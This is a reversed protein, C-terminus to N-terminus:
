GSGRRRRRRAGARPPGARQRPGCPWAARADQGVDATRLQAEPEEGLVRELEVLALAHPQDLAAAHGLGAADRDVEGAQELRDLLALAHQEGIPAHSSTTSSFCGSPSCARTTRAPVIPSRL